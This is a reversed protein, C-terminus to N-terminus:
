SPRMRRWVLISSLLIAGFAITLSIRNQDIQLKLSRPEVVIIDEIIKCKSINQDCLEIDVPEAVIFRVTIQNSKFIDEELDPSFRVRDRKSIEEEITEGESGFYDIQREIFQLTIPELSEDSTSYPLGVLEARFLVPNGVIVQEDSIWNFKLFIPKDYLDSFKTVTTIELPTTRPILNVFSSSTLVTIIVIALIIDAIKQQKSWALFEEITCAM